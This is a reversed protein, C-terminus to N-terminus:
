KAVRVKLSNSNIYKFRKFDDSFCVGPSYLEYKGTLTVPQDVTLLGSNTDRVIPNTSLYFHFSFTSTEHPQLTVTAPLNTRALDELSLYGHLVGADNRFMVGSLKPGRLVMTNTSANELHCHVVNTTLNTLVTSDLSITFQLAPFLAPDEAVNGPLGANQALGAMASAFAMAVLMNKWQM